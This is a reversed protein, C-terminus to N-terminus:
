AAAPSRAKRPRGRGRYRPQLKPAPVYTAAAEAVGFTFPNRVTVGAYHAGDQLDETLLIDCTLTQATALILSDWWSLRHRKEIEFARTLLDTDVQRPNWLMLSQMDEWASERSLGPKLKQTVTTYYENLVQVSTRGRQERWLIDLWEQARAAKIPHRGDRVYVFVNTDVFVLDTM